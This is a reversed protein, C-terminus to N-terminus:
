SANEAEKFIKKIGKKLLDRNTTFGNLLFAKFEEDLGAKVIECLSLASSVILEEKDELIIKPAKKYSTFNLVSQLTCFSAMQQQLFEAVTLVFALDQQQGAGYKDCIPQKVKQLEKLIDDKMISHLNESKAMDGLSKSIHQKLFDEFIIRDLSNMM